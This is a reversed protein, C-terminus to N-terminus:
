NRQRCGGAEIIIIADEIKYQGNLANCVIELQEYLGDENSIDSTLTCGALAAEDYRIDVGYSEGLAELIRVVSANTYNNKLLPQQTIVHPKEVITKVLNQSRTYVAQQNPTLTIEQVNKRFFTPQAVQALVSVKGTKVAVVIEKEQHYAKIRFSTGLVKTTVENTYVLFPRAADKSVQFFAEGSLYVERKSDFKAPYRIESGPELSVVSGDYLTLKEITTGANALTILDDASAEQLNTNKQPAVYRSLVWIGAVALMLLSAAYRLVKFYNIKRTGTHQSRDIWQQQGAGTEDAHATSSLIKKFIKESRTQAEIGPLKPSLLDAKLDELISDKIENEYVGSHILEMLETMEGATITKDLYRQFLHNFKNM